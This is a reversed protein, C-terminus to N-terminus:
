LKYIYHIVTGFDFETISNSENTWTPGVVKVSTCSVTSPTNSKVTMPCMVVCGAGAYPGVIGVEVKKDVHCVLICIVM